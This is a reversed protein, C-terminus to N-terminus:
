NTCLVRTKKNRKYCYFWACANKEYMKRMDFCKRGDEVCWDTPSKWLPKLRIKKPALLVCKEHLGDTRYEISERLAWTELCPKGETPFQLRVGTPPSLIRVYLKGSLSGPISSDSMGETIEKDGFRKEASGVVVSFYM